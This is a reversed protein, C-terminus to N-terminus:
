SGSIQETVTKELQTLDRLSKAEGQLRLTDEWTSATCLLNKISELKMQAFSRIGSFDHVQERIQLCVTKRRLAIEANLEDATM